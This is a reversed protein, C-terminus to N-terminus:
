YCACEAKLFYTFNRNDIVPNTITSDETNITSTAMIVQSQVNIPVRYLNSTNTADSGTIIFSTIKVGNPLNVPALFDTGSAASISGFDTNYSVDDVDPNKAIFGAGNISWAEGRGSRKDEILTTGTILQDAM